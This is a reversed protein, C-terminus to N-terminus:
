AAPPPPTAPGDVLMPHPVPAVTGCTELLKNAVFDMIDGPQTRVVGREIQKIVEARAARESDCEVYENTVDSWYAYTPYRFAHRRRWSHEGTMKYIGWQADLCAAPM